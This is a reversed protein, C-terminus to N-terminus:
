TFFGRTMKRAANFVEPAANQGAKVIDNLVPSVRRAAEDLAGGIATEIAGDLAEMKARFIDQAIESGDVAGRELVRQRLQNLADAGVENPLQFNGLDSVNGGLVNIAPALANTTVDRFFGVFDGYEGGTRQFLNDISASVVKQIDIRELGTVKLYEQPLRELIKNFDDVVNIISQNILQTALDGSLNEDFLSAISNLTQEDQGPRRVLELTQTFRGKSFSNRVTVINYLGTFQQLSDIVMQGQRYDFGTRFYVLIDVQEYVFPAQINGAVYSRSQDAPLRFNSADSEAMYYPDGWITLELSVNETDSNLILNNFLEAIRRTNTSIRAGGSNAMDLTYPYVVNRIGANANPTINTGAKSTVRNNTVNPVDSDEGSQINTWPKHFSNDITFNFDIIDTNRGTYSYFYGKDLNLARQSYNTQMTPAGFVSSHVKYPIVIYQFEMASRGSKTMEITDLIRNKVDIKFWTMMGDSDPYQEILSRGWESTLIVDEIIIPISTNQPFVFDRTLPDITFQADRITRTTEDWSSNEFAFRINGPDEFTRVIPSNGIYNSNADQFLTVDAASFDGYQVNGSQEAARFSEVRGPIGLGTDTVTPEAPGDLRSQLQQRERELNTRAAESIARDGSGSLDDLADLNSIVTDLQRRLSDRQARALAPDVAGQFYGIPANLVPDIEPIFIDDEEILGGEPNKPFVITYRDGVLKKGERVAKEEIRNLSATLSNDGKQLVEVVSTGSISTTTQMNAIQDLLNLHNFPTATCSYNAGGADVSFQIDVWKIAYGRSGVTKGHEGQDTHGIWDVSIYFPAEIYNAYGAQLAGIALAQLFLGVSYPEYVNFQFTVNNTTGTAPNPNYLGEIEVDDMFFEVQGYQKELETLVTKQGIGGDRIILNPKYNLFGSENYDQPELVGLSWRYNCSRFQNLINPQMAM